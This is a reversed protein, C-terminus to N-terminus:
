PEVEDIGTNGRLAEAVIGPGHRNDDRDGDGYEERHPEIPVHPAKGADRIKLPAHRRREQGGDEMNDVDGNDASPHGDGVIDEAAQELHHKHHRDAEAVPNKEVQARRTRRNGRDPDHQDAGALGPLHQQLIKPARLLGVILHDADDVIVRVFPAADNLSVPDDAAAVRDKFIDFLVLHLLNEERDGAGRRRLLAIDQIDAAFGVALDLHKGADVLKDEALDRDALHLRNGHLIKEPALGDFRIEALDIVEDVALGDKDGAAAAGDATLEATLDGAVRRLAQDDEIDILIVSVRDLQLEAFFVRIEIKHGEDAGDAVAAADVPDKLLVARVDNVVRGRVLVNGEHLVAGALGDLVVGDTGVLRGVGGHDVAAPAEDEYGRVLGDVRGVDHAGTFAEAFHNDLGKVRLDLGAFGMLDRLEERVEALFIGVLVPRAFDVLVDPRFKDRNTEAVDEAGVARDDRDELLLDLLAARDGHGVRVDDAVEHGDGLGDGEDHQGAGVGVAPLDEDEVHAARDLDVGERPVEDPEGAELGVYINLDFVGTEAGTFLKVFLLEHGLLAHFLGLVVEDVDALGQDEVGVPEEGLEVAEHDGGVVVFFVDDGANGVDDGGVM